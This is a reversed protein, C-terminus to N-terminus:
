WSQPRSERGGSSPLCQRLLCVLCSAGLALLVAHHQGPPLSGLIGFCGCRTGGPLLATGAAFVATLIMGLLASTRVGIGLALGLGAVLELGPLATEGIELAQRALPDSLPFLPALHTGPAVLKGAAAALLVLVACGRAVRLVWKM